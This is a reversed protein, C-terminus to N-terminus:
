VPVAPSAHLTGSLPCGQWQRGACGPSICTEAQEPTPSPSEGGGQLVPLLQPPPPSCKNGLKCWNPGASTYFSGLMMM